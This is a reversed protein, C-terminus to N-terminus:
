KLQPVDDLASLLEEVTEDDSADDVYIIEGIALLLTVFRM